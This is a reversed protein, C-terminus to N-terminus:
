LEDCTICLQLPIPTFYLKGVCSQLDRLLAQGHHALDKNAVGGISDGNSADLRVRPEGLVKWVFELYAGPQM